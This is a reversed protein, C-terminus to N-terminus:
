LSIMECIKVNTLLISSHCPYVHDRVVYKIM